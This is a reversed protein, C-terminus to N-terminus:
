ATARAPLLGEPRWLLLLLVLGYLVYAAAGPLLYKCATDVVGLVAAAAFSGKFSGLGGIGVVVLFLVLYRLAYYPDLPLMPAGLVAGLGALACGAAFTLTFLRDVDVGVAQAMRPNDVAARLRAGVPTGDIVFWLGALTAFGAGILFLRYTPYDRYGISVLGDLVAPVPLTRLGTGFLTTLSAIVVFCIGFTLLAQPLEGKRYLPRYLLRETVAGLAACLLMAGLAAAAFPLGAGLLTAAAYGGIMAFAGHALNVVRMLGMTVTLGVSIIFLVMGYALGDLLITLYSM